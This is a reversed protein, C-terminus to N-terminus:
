KEIIEIRVMDAQDLRKPPLNTLRTYGGPRKEMQKAIEYLKKINRDGQMKRILQRRRHLTDGGKAYTVLPEFFKKLESAKAKTTVIAGHEILESSLNILLAKRNQSSRGLIRNSNRHKM